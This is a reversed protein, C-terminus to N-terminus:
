ERTMIEDALSSYAAAGASGRDYFMVPVGFSPAESLTVNRPIVTQYVKEGLHSRVDAIVQKSLNTRQNMTLLVGHLKLNRNLNDRVLIITQLLESLGELAFYECQLTVIVGDCATLGNVTLLSLSPPCDIFVYEYDSRISDVAERLRYERRRENVLEVEAGVLERNSPVVWLNDFETRRAIDRLPVDNVMADYLTYELTKKDIGVGSTANGQPDLDVLLTKRGADAVSAALNIATTTKGVGGKQNAIAIVRRM